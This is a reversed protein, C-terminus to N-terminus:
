KKGGIASLISSKAKDFSSPEINRNASTAEQIRDRNDVVTLVKGTRKDQCILYVFKEGEPLNDSVEAYVLAKGRKGEINFRIRTRKSVPYDNEESYSFSDVQNRRSESGGRGYCRMDEGTIQSKVTEDHQLRAFAEDYLKAPSVGSFLLEYIMYASFGGISLIFAWLAGLKSYLKVKDAFTKPEEFEYDDQEDYDLKRLASSSDGGVASPPTEPPPPTSSLGRSGIRTLTSPNYRKPFVGKVGRLLNTGRLLAQSRLM